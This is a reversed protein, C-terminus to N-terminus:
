EERFAGLEVLRPSWYISAYLSYPDVRTRLPEEVGKKIATLSRLYSKIIEQTHKDFVVLSSGFVSIATLISLALNLLENPPNVYFYNILFKGLGIVGGICAGLILISKDTKLKKEIDDIHKKLSKDDKGIGEKTADMICYLSKGLNKLAKEDQGLQLHCLLKNYYIAALEFNTFDLRGKKYFYTLDILWNLAISYDVLVENNALFLYTESLGLRADLNGAYCDVARLFHQEAQKYKESTFCDRGILSYHISNAERFLEKENKANRPVRFTFLINNTKDWEQKAWVSCAKNVTKKIEKEHQFRVKDFQKGILEDLAELLLNKCSDMAENGTIPLHLMTELSLKQIDPIVENKNSEFFSEAKERKNLKIYTAVVCAISIINPKERYLSLFEDLAKEYEAKKFFECGKIFNPEHM